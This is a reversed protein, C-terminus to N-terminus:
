SLVDMLRDFESVYDKIVEVHLLTVSPMFATGVTASPMFATGVTASPMFATEVFPIDDDGINTTHFAWGELSKVIYGLVIMEEPPVSLLYIKDGAETIRESLVNLRV